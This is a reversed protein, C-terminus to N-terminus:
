SAIKRFDSCRLALKGKATISWYGSCTRGDVVEVIPFYAVYGQEALTELRERALDPNAFDNVWAEDPGALYTLLIADTPDLDKM